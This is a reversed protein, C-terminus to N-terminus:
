SREKGPVPPKWAQDQKTPSGQPNTKTENGLLASGKSWLRRWPSTPGSFPGFNVGIVWIMAEISEAYGDGGWAVDRDEPKRLQLWRGAKRCKTHKLLRAVMKPGGKRRILEPLKQLAAGLDNLDLDLLDGSQIKSAAGVLPALSGTAIEMLETLLDFGDDYSFPVTHYDALEGGATEIQTVEPDRPM